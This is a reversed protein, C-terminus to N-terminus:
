LALQYALMTAINAVTGGNLTLNGNIIVNSTTITNTVALNTLATPVRKWSNNTSSYIYNTGNVQATLGDTPNSPFSM